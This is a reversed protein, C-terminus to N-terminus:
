WPVPGLHLHDQFLPSAENVMQWCSGASICVSVDGMSIAELRAIYGFSEGQLIYRGVREDEDSADKESLAAFQNPEEEVPSDRKLSM